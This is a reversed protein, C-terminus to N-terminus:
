RFVKRNVYIGRAILLGIATQVIVSFLQKKMMEPTMFIFSALVLISGIVCLAFAVKWYRRRICLIFAVLVVIGDILTLVGQKYIDSALHEITDYGLGALYETLNDPYTSKIYSILADNFVSSYLGEGLSIAAFIGLLIIFFM